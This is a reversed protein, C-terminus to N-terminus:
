LRNNKLWGSAAAFVSAYKRLKERLSISWHGTAEM